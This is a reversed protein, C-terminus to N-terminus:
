VFKSWDTMRFEEALEMLHFTPGRSLFDYYGRWYLLFNFKLSISTDHYVDHFHVRM